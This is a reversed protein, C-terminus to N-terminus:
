DKIIPKLSGVSEEHSVAVTDHSSANCCHEKDAFSLILILLTLSSLFVHYMASM